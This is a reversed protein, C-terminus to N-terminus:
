IDLSVNILFLAWVDCINKSESKTELNVVIQTIFKQIIFIYSKQIFCLTHLLSLHAYSVHSSFLM